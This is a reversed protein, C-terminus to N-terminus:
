MLERILLLSPQILECHLYIVKLTNSELPHFAINFAIIM